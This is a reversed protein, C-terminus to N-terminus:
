DLEKITIPRGKYEREEIDDNFKMSTVRYTIKLNEFSVDYLSANNYESFEITTKYSEGAEYDGQFYVNYTAIKTDGNYFVMEGNIYTVKHDSTNKLDFSIVSDYYKGGITDDKDTATITVCKTPNFGFGMTAIIVVTAVLSVVMTIVAKKPADRHLKFKPSGPKKIAEKLYVGFTSFSILAFIAWGIFWWLFNSIISIQEKNFLLVIGLIVCFILNFLYAPIHTKRDRIDDERQKAEQEAKRNIKEIYRAREVRDIENQVRSIYESVDKYKPIKNFEKLANEYKGSNFYQLANQYIAEHCKEVIDNYPSEDKSNSLKKFEEMAQEYLGIEVLHLAHQHMSEQRKKEIDDLYSEDNGQPIKKVEELAEEYKGSEFKRLAQQYMAEKCKIIFDNSDLVTEIKQFAALANEFEGNNYLTVAKKYKRYDSAQQDYLAFLEIAKDCYAIYESSQKYRKFGKLFGSKISEFSYKSYKKLCEKVFDNQFYDIPEEKNVLNKLFLNNNYEKVLIQYLEEKCKEAFAASDKYDSLSMFTKRAEKFHGENFLGIADKYSEEIEELREREAAEQAERRMEAYINERYAKLDYGCSPCQDPTFNGEWGCDPNPCKYLNLAM